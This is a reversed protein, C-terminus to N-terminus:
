CRSPALSDFLAEYERAIARWSLGRARELAHASMRALTEPDTLLSHLTEALAEATPRDVLVGSRGEWVLGPDIGEEVRFAVVPLGCGYAELLTLNGGGGAQTTIVCLRGAKARRYVERTDEIFGHFCVRTLGAQSARAELSAREPGDGIIDTRPELGHRTKLIALAEVLLDVRKHRKLRGLAVIDSTRPAGPDVEGIEDAPVGNSICRVCVGHGMMSVLRAQELRTDTVVHHRPAFVRLTLWEFLSGVLGAVRRYRTWLRFGWVEWWDLVAPRARLSAWVLVPIVHVLPWQGVWVVDCSDLLRLRRVVHWTFLLPEITSRKGDESYLEPARGVGVYRIGDREIEDPGEWAKFTLWTVSWGDQVLVRAVEYFRRQAGGKIFPFSVDYVIVIRKRPPDRTVTM